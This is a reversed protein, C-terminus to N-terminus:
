EEGAWDYATHFADASMSDYDGANNRTIFEGFVVIWDRDAAEIALGGDARTHCYSCVGGGIPGISQICDLFKAVDSLNNGTWRIATVAAPKLTYQEVRIERSKIEAAKVYQASIEAAFGRLFSLEEADSPFGTLLPSGTIWGYQETTVDLARKLIGDDIETVATM